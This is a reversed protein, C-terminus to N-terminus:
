PSGVPPMAWSRFFPVSVRDPLHWKESMDWEVIFHMTGIRYPAGNTILWAYDRRSDALSDDNGAPKAGWVDAPVPATKIQAVLHITVQSNWSIAVLSGFRIDIV